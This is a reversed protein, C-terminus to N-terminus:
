RPLETDREGLLVPVMLADADHLLDMLLAGGLGAGASVLVALLWLRVGYSAVIGRGPV